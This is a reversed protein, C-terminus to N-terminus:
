TVFDKTSFKLPLVFVTLINAINSDNVPNSWARCLPLVVYWFDKSEEIRLAKCAPLLSVPLSISGEYYYLAM